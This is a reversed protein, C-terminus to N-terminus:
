NGILTKSCAFKNELSRVDNKVDLHYINGNFSAGPGGKSPKHAACSTLDRIGLPYRESKRSEIELPFSLPTDEPMVALSPM